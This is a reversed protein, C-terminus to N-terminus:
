WFEVPLNYSGNGCINKITQYQYVGYALARRCALNIIECSYIKKLSLIGQITRSWYKPQKEIVLLFLQEAYEGIDAMKVQYRQQYETESLRKYKPYHAENTSFKGGGKQRGHLAIEKGKYYIKVLKKSVEIDVVKGIYEFPVSYYNYDVYIHCDHYVKRRGVSPLKFERLPLPLLKAREEENFVEQPIRRTTGHVRRNCVKEQWDRLRSDVDNGNKFVKGLFFNGKVYKIGSEVKGKDNPRYIRCPIPKFGYYDAFEKYLRQYVPQYFNAELIAAKLNDIRVTKPVGRFYNFANIHCEIFREVRQDYVKEYYDYRSYSLKMNFVWTKRRKGGNDPTLGVYGFDVQAEEGPLTHIRVFINERKKINALYDKVASYSIKLGMKELEQHIRVGSLGIEVLEIVKEKYSDLRKPHPKKEPYEKGERIAKVVKAITKWDHGTVRAIESISKGQEMLTKVTIYMAIGIM